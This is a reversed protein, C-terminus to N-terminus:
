ETQNGGSSVDEDVGLSEPAPSSADPAPPPPLAAPPPNVCKGDVCVRTGKCDTDKGCGPVVGLNAIPHPTQLEMQSRQRALSDKADRCRATKIYGTVASSAFLALLAVNGGMSANALANNTTGRYTDTAVVTATAVGAVSLAAFVTDWLPPARSESCVVYSGIGPTHITSSPGRVFVFSCGSSCLALIVFVGICSQRM